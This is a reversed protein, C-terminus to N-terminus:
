YQVLSFLDYGKLQSRGDLDTLEIVVGIGAIVGGAKEVLRATAALTGGTALLDDLILVRQGPNIGDVHIEMANSGYELHYETSYTASPLKGPKRVPVLPKGMRYAMPAGFLFGRSEVPVIVDFDAPNFHERLQDVASAFAATNQLLPTIDRYLIGPEPFDPIDRIFSKLEM